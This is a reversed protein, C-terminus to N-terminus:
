WAWSRAIHGHRSLPSYSHRESTVAAAVHLRCIERGVLVRIGRSVRVETVRCGACKAIGIIVAAGTVRTVLAREAARVLVSMFCVNDHQHDQSIPARLDRVSEKWRVEVIM